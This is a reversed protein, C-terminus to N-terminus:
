QVARWIEKLFLINPSLGLSAEPKYLHLYGQGKPGAEVEQTSLHYTHVVLPLKHYPAISQFWPKRSGPLRELCLWM